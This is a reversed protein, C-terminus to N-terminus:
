DYYGVQNYAGDSGLLNEMWAAANSYKPKFNWCQAEKGVLKIAVDNPCACQGKMTIDDESLPTYNSSTKLKYPEELPHWFWCEEINCYLVREM